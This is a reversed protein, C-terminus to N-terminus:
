EMLVKFRLANLCLSPLLPRTLTPLVWPPGALSRHGQPLVQLKPATLATVQLRASRTDDVTPVCPLPFSSVIQPYLPCMFRM